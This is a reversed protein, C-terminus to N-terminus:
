RPGRRRVTSWEAAGAGYYWETRASIQGPPYAALRRTRPGPKREIRPEGQGTIPTLAIEEPHPRLGAVLGWTEQRVGLQRKVSEPADALKEMLFDTDHFFHTVIDDFDIEGIRYPGVNAGTMGARALDNTRDTFVDLVEYLVLWHYDTCHYRTTQDRHAEELRALLPLMEDPTFLKASRPMTGRLWAQRERRMARKASAKECRAPDRESLWGHSVELAAAVMEHFVQDPDAAWDLM